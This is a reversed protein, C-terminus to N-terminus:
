SFDIRILKITVTIKALIASFNLDSCSRDDNNWFVFSYANIRKQNKLEILFLLTRNLLIM